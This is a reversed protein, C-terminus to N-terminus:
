SLAAAGLERLVKLGECLRQIADKCKEPHLNAYCVRVTGPAGCASGPIVCVRHSDCLWEVIRFDDGCGDPLRVMLYIAGSGGIVSDPGLVKEISSIMLQKNAVIGRVRERVWSRGEALAAQAATQSAISPCIAITDQVKMLEDRLSPPYALYGVRWGMMGYAKSFSFINVIHDGSIASHACFGDEEYTFHEYTNDVVLWAGWKACLKSIKDLHAAPLAMGTPNCPNVVTVLRIRQATDEALKGELWDTDPLFDNEKVPGLLVNEGGGTMQLAMLHNFYFPKFLVSRDEADLLGVVVNTYAQNAGATIMVDVGEIGNENRLKDILANRLSAMGDDAGYANTEPDGASAAVAKAVSEPPAWHVIGQALSMVGEKGRLMKQMTVICPTDTAKIRKSPQVSLSELRMKTALVARAMECFLLSKGGGAVYMGGRTQSQVL